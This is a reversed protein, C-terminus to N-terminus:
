VTFRQQAQFETSAAILDTALRRTLYDRPTCATLFALIGLMLEFRIRGHNGGKSCRSSHPRGPNMVIRELDCAENTLTRHKAAVRILRTRMPQSDSHGGKSFPSPQPLRLEFADKRSDNVVPSQLCVPADTRCSLAQPSKAKSGLLGAAPSK